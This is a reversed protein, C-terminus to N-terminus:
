NKKCFDELRDLGEKLVDLSTCYSIRIAHDNGFAIGPVAAVKYRDLLKECLELSGIGLETTDIFFYFAGKPEVVKIKPMKSLRDYVYQRRFDYEERLDAIFTQEGKLAEIAGYQCFTTANSATHDMSLKIAQAIEAPAATYGLRWGTMAYSKSFGNVTITLNYLEPSLSAISVHKADGYVLHEYIEDALILIDEEVAIEGIARLEEESYVAGTPNQPSNVIILKTRPTMANEFEEATIKWGNEPRTEVLVPTGGCLQVMSPYSVWYPTPIIVEDGPNIVARLAAYVAPKAGSTVCIQDIGYELGNDKKLKAAIAERLAPLGVSPTYKTAGENLAKIAAQKINEPTDKDPEGGALGFVQEGRAKMEKAKNTVALTLSPTLSSAYESIFDM